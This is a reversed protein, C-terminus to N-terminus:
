IFYAFLRSLVNSFIISFSNRKKLSFEFSESLMINFDFLLENIVRNNVIFVSDELQYNMSRIDFNQSGCLAVEGDIAILKQHLFKPKYFYVEAGVRKLKEAYTSNLTLIIRSVKKPLIIKVSVGQYIAFEIARLIDDSISLYPTTIIIESKALSILKQIVSELTNKGNISFPQVYGLKENEDFFEFEIYEKKTRLFMNQVSKVADGYLKLGCDKSPRKNEDNFNVGGLFAVKGDIVALKQHCRKNFSLGMFLSLPRYETIKVGLSKLTLGCRSTSFGKSGFYDVTLEVKVNRKTANIIESILKFYHEGNDLIYFQLYVFNKANKIEEIIEDLFGSSTSFYKLENAYLLPFNTRYDIYEAVKAFDKKEKSLSKLAKKFNTLPSRVSREKLKIIFKELYLFLCVGFGFYPFVAMQTIILLKFRASKEFILILAAIFGLIIFYVFVRDFFGAIFYILLSILTIVILDLLLSFVIKLYFKNM